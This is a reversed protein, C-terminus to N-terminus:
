AKGELIDRALPTLRSGAPLSAGEDLLRRVEKATLLPGSADGLFQVGLQKMQREAALLRGWLVRNSTKACRRYELGEEWLFVPKGCLLADACPEDPFQLLQGASLSGIMVADFDGSLVYNWGLERPPKKGILLAIRQTQRQRRLVEAAVEEIFRENM